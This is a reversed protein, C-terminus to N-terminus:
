SPAGTSFSSIFPLYFAIGNRTPFTINVLYVGVLGGLARKTADAPKSAKRSWTPVYRLSPDSDGAGKKETKMKSSEALPGATVITGM